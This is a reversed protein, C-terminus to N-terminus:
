EEGEFSHVEVADLDPEPIIRAISNMPVLYKIDEKLFIVGDVIKGSKPFSTRELEGEKLLGMMEIQFDGPLDYFKCILNKM